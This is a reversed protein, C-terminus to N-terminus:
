VCGHLRPDGCAILSRFSHPWHCAEVETIGPPLCFKKIRWSRAASACLAAARSCPFTKCVILKSSFLLRMGSFEPLVRQGVCFVMMSVFGVTLAHRSAGWIGSPNAANAAWIGLAAAIRLWIYATRIFTPFSSHVGKTKPPRQAPSFLGLAFSALPTAATVLLTAARFWGALGCGVGAVLFAAAAALLRNNVDPSGLFTPLWKASFGM